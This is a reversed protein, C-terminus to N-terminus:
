PLQKPPIHVASCGVELWEIVEKGAIDDKCLLISAYRRQRCGGPDAQQSNHSGEQGEIVRWLHSSAAVM